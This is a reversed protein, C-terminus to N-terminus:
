DFMVRGDSLPSESIINLLSIRVLLFKEAESNVVTARRFWLGAAGVFVPTVLFSLRSSGVSM